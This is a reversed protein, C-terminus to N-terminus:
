PEVAWREELSMEEDGPLADFAQDLKRVDWVTRANIRKPKPMRGDKVMEDFLSTSVGVYGAAEVRNIGRATPKAIAPVRRSSDSDAAPATLRNM